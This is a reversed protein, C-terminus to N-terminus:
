RTRGPRSPTSPGAVATTQALATGPDADLPEREVAIDVELIPQSLVTARHRRRTRSPRARDVRRLGGTRRCATGCTSSSSSSSARAATSCRSPRRCTPSGASRSASPSARGPVRLQVVGGPGVSLARAAEASLLGHGPEYSGDVIRISPDRERYIEDFGFVRVPDPRGSPAPRLAGPALDVFSLQDAHAVGPVRAIQRTLEALSM